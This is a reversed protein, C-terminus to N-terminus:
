RAESPPPGPKYAAFVDIEDFTKEVLARRKDKPVASQKLMTMAQEMQRERIKSCDDGPEINDPNFNSGASGQRLDGGRSATKCAFYTVAAPAFEDPINLSPGNVTVTSTVTEQDQALSLAAAVVLAFM